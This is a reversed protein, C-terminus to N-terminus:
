PSSGRSALARSNKYPWISVTNSPPPLPFSTSVECFPSISHYSLGGARCPEPLCRGLGVAGAYRWGLVGSASGGRPLACGTRGDGGSAGARREGVRCIRHWCRVLGRIAGVPYGLRPGGWGAPFPCQPCRPPRHSPGLGAWLEPAGVVGNPPVREGVAQVARALMLERVRLPEVHRGDALAMVSASGLAIIWALGMIGVLFTVPDPRAGDVVIGRTLRESEPRFGAVVVMGLVPILPMTLRIEQYPWLWLMGTLLAATVIPTWTQASLRRVGVFLVGGIVVGALVAGWGQAGPFFVGVIRSALALARAVMVGFYGGEGGAQGTLWGTYPGLTDRLPAPIGAAARGSWFMWPVIIMVAGATCRLAWTIRGRMLLALPIAIGVALGMTRTHYALAFVALFEVLRRWTPQAELRSGTWLAAVLTVLFLPESLPVLALRWLDPLLWFLVASVVSSRWSFDLSRLYAVFMGGSSAVFLLNFFSALQGQGVAEPSVKWLLALFLPYLPPFKAGPLSGPVQSYRLGEGDALSKGLLLYAGDDHWVGPSVAAWVFLGVVGLGVAVALPVILGPIRGANQGVGPEEPATTDSM